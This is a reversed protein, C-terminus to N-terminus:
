RSAKWVSGDQQVWLDGVVRPGASWGRPRREPGRSRDMLAARPAAMLTWRPVPATEVTGDEDAEGPHGQRVALLHHDAYTSPRSAWDPRSMWVDGPNTVM